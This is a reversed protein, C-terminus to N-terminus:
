PVHRNHHICVCVVVALLLHWVFRACVVDSRVHWVVCVHFRVLFALCLHWYVGDHWIEYVYLVCRCSACLMNFCMCIFCSFVFVHFSRLLCCFVHCDVFIHM